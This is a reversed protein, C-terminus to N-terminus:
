VTPQPKPDLQTPDIGTDLGLRNAKDVKEPDLPKDGMIDRTLVEDIDINYNEEDFGDEEEDEIDEEEEDSEIDELEELDEETVITKTPDQPM